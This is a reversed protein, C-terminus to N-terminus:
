GAGARLIITTIAAIAVVAAAGIVLASVIARLVLGLLYILTVVRVYASM